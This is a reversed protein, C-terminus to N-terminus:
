KTRYLEFFCRAEHKPHLLQFSQCNLNVTMQSVTKQQIFVFVFSVRFLLYKQDIPRHQRNPLLRDYTVM